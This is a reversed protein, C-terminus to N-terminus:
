YRNKKDRYVIFICTYGYNRRVFQFFYVTFFYM